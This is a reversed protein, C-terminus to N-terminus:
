RARDINGKKAGIDAESSQDLQPIMIGTRADSPNKNYCAGQEQVVHAISCDLVIRTKGAGVLRANLLM